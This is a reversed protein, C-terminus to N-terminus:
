NTKVVITAIGAKIAKGAADFEVVTIVHGATLDELNVGTTFNPTDGFDNWADTMKMGRYVKATKIGTKYLLTTGSEEQGSVTIKTDGASTGAASGVTLEGLDANAYDTPFTSSTTAAANAFSVQVFAEGFVPMGDYRAYGFGTMMQQFKAHESSEVKCRCARSLSVRIYGGIINNDASGSGVIDGGVIPM